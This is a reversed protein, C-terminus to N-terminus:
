KMPWNTSEIAPGSTFLAAPGSGDRDHGRLQQWCGLVADGYKWFHWLRSLGHATRGDEVSREGRGAAFRLVLDERRLCQPREKRM